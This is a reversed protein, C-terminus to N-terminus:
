AAPVPVSHLVHSVASEAQIVAAQGDKPGEACGIVFVGARATETSSMQGDLTQFFGHDDQELGLIKALQSTGEDPIMASALIVMDVTLDTADGKGDPSKVHLSEGQESVDVADPFPQFIFEVGEEKVKKFFAQSTKGPVCLDSHIHYVKAEPLKHKVFHAHKLSSLCCVGSCYGLSKRGVCHIIAVTKPIKNGQRLTLEGSTPGNSAFLREFEMATYVGPFKGYGLNSITSVDFLQFGTAVVIAGTQIEIKEEKESFDIAEFMCAEQCAKCSKEGSLQLCHESDIAPVNPLAGACPVYIAKKEALNEEWENQLSVPCPEFCMGCGICATLSVYRPKKHLTAQFSGAEGEVKKLTCLTMVDIGSHQLIEQQIPALMCTSCEMHPFSEENKVINGGILPSKEILCVKEGGKALQLSAEMGAVGAGIVLADYTTDM